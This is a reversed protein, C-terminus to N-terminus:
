VQVWLIGLLFCLCYFRPCQNYSYKKRFYRRLCPFCFFFFLCIPNSWVLLKAFCTFGDVFYFYLGNFPLAYKSICRILLKYLFNIFFKSFQIGVEGERFLWILFHAFSRFLCKELFSMCIALLCILLLEVDSIMLSICILVVIFYWRVSTMIAIMLLDVFLLNQHPHPSFPVRM